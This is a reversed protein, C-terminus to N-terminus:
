GVKTISLNVVDMPEVGPVVEGAELREKYAGRAPRRELLSWAKKKHIFAYFKEWDVVKPVVLHSISVTAREGTGSELKQGQLLTLIHEKLKAEEAKMAEVREEVGLREARMKYALDACAGITKPFAM